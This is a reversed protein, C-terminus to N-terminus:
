KLDERWEDSDRRREILTQCVKQRVNSYERQKCSVIPLTWILLLLTSM